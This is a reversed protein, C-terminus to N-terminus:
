AFSAISRSSCPLTVPRTMRVQARKPVPAARPSRSSSRPVGWAPAAAPGPPAVHVICGEFRQPALWAIYGGYSLPLLSLDAAEPRLPIPNTVTM